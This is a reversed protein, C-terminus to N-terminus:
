ENKGEKLKRNIKRILGKMPNVGVVIGAVQIMMLVDGLEEELKQKDFFPKEHPNNRIYGYQALDIEYAEAIETIAFKMADDFNPFKLKRKVFYDLILDSFDQAIHEM